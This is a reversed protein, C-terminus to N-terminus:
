FKCTKSLFVKRSGLPRSPCDGWGWDESRWHVLGANFGARVPSLCGQLRGGPFHSAHSGGKWVTRFDSTMFNKYLCLCSKWSLIPHFIGGSSYHLPFPFGWRVKCWVLFSDGICMYVCVCCVCACCVCVCLEGRGSLAEADVCTSGSVPMSAWRPCAWCGGGHEPWPPTPVPM